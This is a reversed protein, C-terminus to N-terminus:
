LTGELNLSIEFRDKNTEPRRMVPSRFKVDKFLPSAELTSILAAADNALGALEIRGDYM